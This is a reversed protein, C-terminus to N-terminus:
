INCLLTWSNFDTHLFRNCVEQRCETLIGAQWQYEHGRQYGYDLELDPEAVHDSMTRGELRPGAESPVHEALM